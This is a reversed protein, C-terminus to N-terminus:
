DCISKWTPKIGVERKYRVVLGSFEQFHNEVLRKLALQRAKSVLRDYETKDPQTREIRYQKQVGSRCPRCIKKFGDKQTRDKHFHQFSKWVGCKTCIKGDKGDTVRFAYWLVM